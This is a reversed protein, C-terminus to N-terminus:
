QKFLRVRQSPKPNENENKEIKNRENLIDKVSDDLNLDGLDPGDFDDDITETVHSPPSDLSIDFDDNNDFIENNSDFENIDTKPQVLVEEKNSEEVVKNSPEIVVEKNEEKVVNQVVDNDNEHNIGNEIVAYNNKMFDLVHQYKKPVKIDDFNYNGIEIMATISSEMFHKAENDPGPHNLYVTPWNNRRANLAAIAFTQETIRPDSYDVDRSLRMTGTLASVNWLTKQPDGFKDAVVISDGFLSATAPAFGHSAFKAKFKNTSSMVKVSSTSSMLSNLYDKYKQEWEITTVDIESDRKKKADLTEQLPEEIPHSSIFGNSANFEPTEKMEHIQAEVNLKNFFMFKNYVEIDADIQKAFEKDQNKTNNITVLVKNLVDNQNETLNYTGNESFEKLVITAAMVNSYKEKDFAAHNIYTALIENKPNESLAADVTSILADVEIRKYKEDFAHSFLENIESYIMDPSKEMLFDQFIPAKTTLDDKISSDIGVNKLVNNLLITKTEQPSIRLEEMCAKYITPIHSKFENLNEVDASMEEIIDNLFLLSNQNDLASNGNKFGKNLYEIKDKLTSM